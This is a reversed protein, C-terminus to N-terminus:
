TPASRAAPASHGRYHPVLQMRPDHRLPLRCARAANAPAFAPRAASGRALPPLGRPERGDRGAGYQRAPHRLIRRMPRSVPRDQAAAAPHRHNTGPDPGAQGRPQAGLLQPHRRQVPARGRGEVGVPLHLENATHVTKSVDGSRTSSTGGGNTPPSRSRHAASQAGPGRASRDAFFSAVTLGVLGVVILAVWGVLAPRLM